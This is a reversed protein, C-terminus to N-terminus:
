DYMVGAYLIHAVTNWAPVDPMEMNQNKYYGEMSDMWYSMGLLFSELDQNEWDGKNNRYDNIMAEIFGKLDDKSNIDTIQEHLGM